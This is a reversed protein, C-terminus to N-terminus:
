NASKMEIIIRSESGKHYYDLIRTFIGALSACFQEFSLRKRYNRYDKETVKVTISGDYGLIVSSWNIIIFLITMIFCTFYTLKFIGANEYGPFIFSAQVTTIGILFGLAPYIRIRYRFWQITGLIIFILAVLMITIYPGGWGENGGQRLILRLEFELFLLIYSISIGIAYIWGISMRIEPRYGM